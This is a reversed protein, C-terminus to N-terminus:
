CAICVQEKHYCYRDNGEVGCYFLKLFAQLRECRRVNFADEDNVIRLFIVNSCEACRLGFNFINRLVVDTITCCMVDGYFLGNCTMGGIMQHEITINIKRGITNVSDFAIHILMGIHSLQNGVGNIGISLQLM